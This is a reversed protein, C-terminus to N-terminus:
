RKHHGQLNHATLYQSGAEGEFFNSIAHLLLVTGTYDPLAM